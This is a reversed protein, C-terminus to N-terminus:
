NLELTAGFSGKERISRFPGRASVILTIELSSIEIRDKGWKVESLTGDSLKAECLIVNSKTAM